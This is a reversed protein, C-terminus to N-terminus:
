LGPLVHEPVPYGAIDRQRVTFTRDSWQGDGLLERIENANLRKSTKDWIRSTIQLWKMREFYEHLQFLFRM